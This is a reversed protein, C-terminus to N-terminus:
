ESANWRKQVDLLEKDSLSKNFPPLPTKILCNRVRGKVKVLCNGRWIHDIFPIQHPKLFLSNASADIDKKTQLAFHAQIKANGVVYNPLESAEQAIAIIGI